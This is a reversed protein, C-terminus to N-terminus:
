DSVAILNIGTGPPLLCTMTYSSNAGTTDTPAAGGGIGIGPFAGPPPIVISQANLLGPQTGSNPVHVTSYDFERFVCNVASPTQFFAAVAWNALNATLRDRPLPCVVWIGYPSTPPNYIRVHSRELFDAQANNYAACTTGSIDFNAAVASTPLGAALVTAACLAVVRMRATECKRFM